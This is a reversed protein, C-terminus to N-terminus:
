SRSEILARRIEKQWANSILKRSFRAEQLLSIDSNGSKVLDILKIIATEIESQVNLGAIVSRGVETLLRATDGSHDTLALLPKRARIYEYAKAPIQENCGAGQLLLLADMTLMEALADRYPLAAKLEVIDDIEFHKLWERYIDEHGSARLILRFNNRDIQGTEKLNQLAKFLDEPNREHIYILGAHLMRVVGDDSTSSPLNQFQNEEFGNTALLWRGEPVNPYREKYTALAGPTTFVLLSARKAAAEEIQKFIRWKCPDSPYGHQAMPDRFDAVWPVNLLRSLALGIIHASAIPYTSIIVDPTKRISHLLGRITAFVIWSQFTDPLAMWKFYKGKIALHRSADLALARKIKVGPNVLNLSKEDTRSYSGSNATLVTVDWGSDDMVNALSVM